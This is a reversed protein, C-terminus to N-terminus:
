MKAKKNALLANVAVHAADASVSEYHVLSHFLSRVSSGNNLSLWQDRRGLFHQAAFMAAVVASRHQNENVASWLAQECLLAYQVVDALLNAVAHAQEMQTAAPPLVRIQVLEESLVVCLTAAWAYSSAMLQGAISELAHMLHPLSAPAARIVDLSLILETGEWLTHNQADRLQRAMPWDEIFGNGGFVELAKSALEVARRCCRFKAIPTLIRQLADAAPDSYRPAHVRALLSGIKFVLASAAESEIMLSLLMDQMLPLEVLTRGFIRRQKAYALANAFVRRCIGEGMIAVAMRQSPAILTMARSLGKGDLPNRTAGCCPYAIADHLEVEASPVSRCGLKDKLRRLSISNQQKRDDLWRPLLFLCLGKTSPAPPAGEPRAITMILDADAISCFWKLGSLRWHKGDFRATTQLSGLDSGGTENETFWITGRWGEDYNTAELKPLFRQQLSSDCFRRVCEAVVGTMGTACLLGTDCMSLLHMAAYAIPVPLPKSPGGFVGRGHSWLLQRSELGQQPHEM